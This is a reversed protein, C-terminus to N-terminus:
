RLFCPGRGCLGRFLAEATFHDRTHGQFVPFDFGQGNIRRILGFAQALTSRFFGKGLLEDSLASREGESLVPNFGQGARRHGGIGGQLRDVASHASLFSRFCGSFFRCFLRGCFRRLFGSSFWSRFRFCGSIRNFRSLLAEAAIHGNM